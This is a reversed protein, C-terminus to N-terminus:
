LTTIKLLIIGVLAILIIAIYLYARRKRYSNDKQGQYNQQFVVLTDLSIKDLNKGSLQESVKSKFSSM